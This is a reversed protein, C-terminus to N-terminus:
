GSMHSLTKAFDCQDGARRWARVSNIKAIYLM